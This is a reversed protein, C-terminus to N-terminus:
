FRAPLFPWAATQRSDKNRQYGWIIALLMGFLIEFFAEVGTHNLSYVLLVEPFIEAGSGISPLYLVVEDVWNQSVLVLATLIPADIIQISDM